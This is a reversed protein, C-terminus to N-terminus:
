LDAIGCARMRSRRYNGKKRGVEIGKMQWNCQNTTQQPGATQLIIIQGLLRYVNFFWFAIFLPFEGASEGSLTQ